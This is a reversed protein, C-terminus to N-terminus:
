SDDDGASLESSFICVYTVTYVNGSRSISLIRVSSCLRALGVYVTAICSIIETEITVTYSEFSMFLSPPLPLPSFL